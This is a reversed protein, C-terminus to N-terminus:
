VITEEGEYFHRVFAESAVYIAPLIVLVAIKCLGVLFVEVMADKKNM